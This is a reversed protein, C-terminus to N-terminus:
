RNLVVQTTVGSTWNGIRTNGKRIERLYDFWEMDVRAHGNRIAPHRVELITTASLFAQGGESLVVPNHCIAPVDPNAEPIDGSDCEPFLPFRSALIDHFALSEDVLWLNRAKLDRRGDANRVTEFLVSLIIERLPTDTNEAITEKLSDLVAKRYRATAEVASQRMSDIGAKLSGLDLTGPLPEDPIDFSPM